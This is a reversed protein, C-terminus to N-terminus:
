PQLPLEKSKRTGKLCVIGSENHEQYLYVWLGDRRRREWLPTIVPPGAEVAAM